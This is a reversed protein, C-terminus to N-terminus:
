LSSAQPFPLKMGAEMLHHRHQGILAKTEAQFLSQNTKKIVTLGTAM